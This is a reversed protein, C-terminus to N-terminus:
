PPIVDPGTRFFSVNNTFTSEPDVRIFRGAPDDICAIEDIFWRNWTAPEPGLYKALLRRFRGPDMAVVEARGRFGLHLLVGAANDFEVIEAAVRPDRVIRAVSSAGASSPLWLMGDEWLFWMPANRPGDASVTALNVMLPRSLLREPDFRTPMARRLWRARASALGPAVGM